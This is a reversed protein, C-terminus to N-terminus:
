HGLQYDISKIVKHNSLLQDVYSIRSVDAHFYHQFTRFSM